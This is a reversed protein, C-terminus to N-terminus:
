AEVKSSPLEFYFKNYKDPHYSSFYDMYLLEERTKPKITLDPFNRLVSGLTVYLECAALQMGVCARSGKSFAVLYRELEASVKPDLWRSPDFKDPDPFIDQNRHMTWSSMGVTTGAPVKYGDFEAGAEPVVRPLRGAVGFSLRLAEKIIGTFYPLKELTVFDIDGNPDPFAERLEATVAAYIKPSSVTNYLGITMANGTTDAAAAVVIYAEDKLQEVTPLEKMFEPNLFQHFITTREPKENAEVQRKVRVVQERSSQHFQLMRTLSPSTLKAVWPPVGLLIPRLFPFQQFFWFMPGFGRIMDFFPAGFDDKELFNYCNDFAYDSIVDISIARFGHHLDIGGCTKLATSIRRVLTKAKSQVIDELELVRKRSFFPNFAARKMRHINNDATTFTAKDVGFADYFPASKNYPTGVHYIKDYNEPNSLHVEDPTIRIVPGYAEHLKDVQLYLKGDLIGNFYFSYLHTARALFPGPIHALPHFNIRYIVVATYWVFIGLGAVTALIALSSPDLLYGTFGAM